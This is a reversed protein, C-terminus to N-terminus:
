VTAPEVHIGPTTLSLFYDELSHRPEASLIGIGNQVLYNIFGPIHAKDMQM